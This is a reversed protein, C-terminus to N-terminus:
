FENGKYMGAVYKEYGNYLQTPVVKMQPIIKETAQSWRPHPKKPNVNSYFGYEVAHLDNWFTKPQKATFEIRVISKPNKYGYKWPAIIRIPAGNQKPLPKGYMGTVLMCLPNMAEDLRLGEYYPFPYHASNVLPMQNKRFASVFRVYKAQPKPEVLKALDSFPFGTWPVAMSWAEVCRFRYLREELPMKRELDDLDFTAPKNVLGTVEVTWPRVVFKGVLNKVAQKDTGHFEYFNNYGAAAWEETIPRDLEFSENRKAPYPSGEAADVLSGAGLFGAAKLIQRRNLWVGQPTADRELLEWDQRIRILM